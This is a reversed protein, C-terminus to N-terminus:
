KVYMQMLTSKIHTTATSVNHKKKGKSDIQNILPKVLRSHHLAIYEDIAESVMKQSYAGKIKEMDCDFTVYFYKNGGFYQKNM